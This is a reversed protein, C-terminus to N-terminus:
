KGLKLLRIIQQLHVQFMIERTSDSFSYVYLYVIWSYNMTTYLCQLHSLHLNKFLSRKIVPSWFPSQNSGWRKDGPRPLEACKTSLKWSASLGVSSNSCNRSARSSTFIVGTTFTHCTVGLLWDLTKLYYINCVLIRTFFILTTKLIRINSFVIVFKFCKTVWSYIYYRPRHFETYTKKLYYLCSYVVNVQFHSICISVLWFCHVIKKKKFSIIIDLMPFWEIKFLAIAPAHGLKRHNYHTYICICESDFRFWFILLFIFVSICTIAISFLMRGVYHM